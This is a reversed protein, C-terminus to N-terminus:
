QDYSFAAAKLLANEKPEYLLSQKHGRKLFM